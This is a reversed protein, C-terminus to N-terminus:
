ATALVPRSSSLSARSRPPVSNRTLYWLCVRSYTITPRGYGRALVRADAHGSRRRKEGGRSRKGRLVGHKRTDSVNVKYLRGVGTSELRREISGRRRTYRQRLPAAGTVFDGHLSSSRTTRLNKSRAPRRRWSAFHRLECFNPKTPGLLSRHDRLTTSDAIFRPRLARARLSEGRSSSPYPPFSPSPFPRPHGM